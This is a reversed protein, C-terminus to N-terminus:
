ENKEERENYIMFNFVNLVTQNTFGYMFPGSVTTHKRAPIGVATRKKQVEQILKEWAGSPTHHHFEINPDNLDKVYYVIKDDDSLGTRGEYWSKETPNQLSFYQRHCVYGIPHNFESSVFKGFDFIILQTGLKLPLEPIETIEPCTIPKSIKRSKLKFDDNDYDNQKKISKLIKQTLTYVRSIRNRESYLFDLCDLNKPKQYRLRENELEFAKQFEDILSLPIHERFPYKPDIIWTTVLLNGYDNIADFLALDCQSNWWSPAIDWTKYKGIYTQIEKKDIESYLKRIEKLENYSKKFKAIWVRNGYSSLKDFVVSLENEDISDRALDLLKKCENTFVELNICKLGSFKQIRKWDIEDTIQENNTQESKKVNPFGLLVLTQFLSRFEDDTMSDRNFLNLHKEKWEIPTMFHDPLEEQENIKDVFSNVTKIAITKIARDSILKFDEEPIVNNLVKSTSQHFGNINIGYLIAYEIMPDVTVLTSPWMDINKQLFNLVHKLHYFFILRKIIADIKESFESLASTLKQEAVKISDDDDQISNVNLIKKLITEQEESLNSKRSIYLIFGKEIIDGSYGNHTIKKALSNPTTTSNHNHQLKKKKKSTTKTYDESESDSFNVKRKCRREPLVEEEKELNMKSLAQKWFDKSDIDDDITMQVKSFVSDGVETQHVLQTSRKDLIQDIDASCFNDIETEDENALDYVGRRLLKEIEQAAMPKQNPNIEGGNLLTHDLGLKKSARDLMELEYTGRTVLRYVQVKSKQGIRHCRSEAQIDNQPNWDSDYIIVTDAVTLNIGVGGARTCLLFVFEDPEQGFREIAMQRETEPVSGDIREYTYSMLSLYDELIDLVKVMQSFILVKHNGAKLKPLLKHILILKGSSNVLAELELDNDGIPKGLKQSMESEIHEAAGKLLFPHNCVKRLQMMLNLLSPTSGGTIHKLLTEANSQLLAKYYTKQIRTLEVEIITEEKVGITKDVDSKVRRLMFRKIVHQLQQIKESTIESYANLFQDLDSFINPHLFHLLSWLEEINNQIPTGTLLTCHEAKIQQMMQYCKSRHNKLRHGEDVVLYRWEIDKILDYDSMFTEYNTIFVDFKVVNPILEGTNRNYVNIEYQKIIEKSMPSGHFVVPYLPSWQEFEKKWHPLTSLPAIILFPGKIAQNIAIDTLAVVIQVTKGLGMEDALISNCSNYWCYRLWNVGELQYSRLTNGSKDKISEELPKFNLPNVNRRKWGIMKSNMNNKYKLYNQIVNKDKISEEDEWACKDYQLNNWLVLYRGDSEGIVRSPIVWSSSFDDDFYLLNTISQSKSLDQKKLKTMYKKYATEGGIVGFLESKKLWKCHIYSMNNYKVYYLPDENDVTDKNVGIISQISEAKEPAKTNVNEKKSDNSPQEEFDDDSMIYYMDDDSTSDKYNVVKKERLYNENYM